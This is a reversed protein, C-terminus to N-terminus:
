LIGIIFYKMILMKIIHDKLGEMFYKRTNRHYGISKSLIKIDLLIFRKESYSKVHYENINCTESCSSNEDYWPNRYQKSLQFVNSDTQFKVLIDKTVIGEMFELCEIPSLEEVVSEDDRVFYVNTKEGLFCVENCGYSKIIDGRLYRMLETIGMFRYLIM